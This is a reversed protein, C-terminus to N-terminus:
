QLIMFTYSRALEHNCAGLWSVICGCKLSVVWGMMKPALVRRRFRRGKGLRGKGGAKSEKKDEEGRRYSTAALNM